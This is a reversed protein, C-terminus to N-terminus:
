VWRRKLILYAGLPFELLAPLPDDAAFIAPEIPARLSKLYTHVSLRGRRIEAAAAMVDTVLRVWRVGVRGSIPSFREGQILRWLLYSFDIGAAKGLTHWGWIRPNIDLLKFLGDRPDHKFEIEILGSFNMQRIIRKGAEEVEKQDVTEVFTSSRAFDIPFQRVRRAVLQAAAQGNLCLAAFSFQGESGGPLLEQVLITDLDAM